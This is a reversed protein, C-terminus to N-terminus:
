LIRNFWALSLLASTVALVAACMLTGVALMELLSKNNKVAHM